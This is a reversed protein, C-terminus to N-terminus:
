RKWERVLDGETLYAGGSAVIREGPRLGKSVVVTLGASPALTVERRSVTKEVPKIVWIFTKGENQLVASLPISVGTETQSSGASLQANATLRATMGNLVLLEPPPTFTFKAEFTQTSGDAQGAAERFSAPMEQGPAADLEVFAEMQRMRPVNVVFSGPVDIVAEVQQSQLTLIPEQAQVTQFEEIFTKGVVGGFPARLVTDALDKRASDLAAEAVEREALRSELVSQSIANGEILREAREFESQANRFEAEAQTVGNRFSRDDLRAIVDGKRFRTGELARWVVVRGSVQFALDTSRVSRVSAPYTNRLSTEVPQATAVKVTKTEPVGLDANDQACGILCAFFAGLLITSGRM